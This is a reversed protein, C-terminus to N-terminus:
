NNRDLDAAVMQENWGNIWLIDDRFVALTGEPGREFTDFKRLRETPCYRPTLLLHIESTALWLVWGGAGSLELSRKTSITLFRQESM